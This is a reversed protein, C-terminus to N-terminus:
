ESKNKSAGLSTFLNFSILSPVSIIYPNIPVESSRNHKKNNNKEHPSVSDVQYQPWQKPRNNWGWIM